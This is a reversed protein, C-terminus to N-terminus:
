VSPLSTYYRQTEAHKYIWNKEVYYTIFKKAYTIGSPITQKLMEALEKYPYDKRNAFVKNIIEFHVDDDNAGPNGKNIRGKAKKDEPM